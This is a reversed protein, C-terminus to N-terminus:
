HNEFYEKVADRNRIGANILNQQGGHRGGYNVDIDPIVVLINNIYNAVNNKILINHLVACSYIIDTM